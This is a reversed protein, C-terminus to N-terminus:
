VEEPLTKGFTWIVAALIIFGIFILLYWPAGFGAPLTGIFLAVGGAVLAYPIQTRVHEMLECGTAMSTLITTDSIPSCHDAWVAGCLVCAITSYFIHINSADIGGNNELVAWSLPVVLPMLIAMVGWSSGSGFATIAAIIFVAAPLLSMPMTEGLLSVIYDATHLANSIDALAWAMVLVIIGMLMFKVGKYWATFTEDITLLRQSVSLAGAVVVSLLTGYVLAKYSDASGLIDQLQEGEGTMYITTIVTGILVLIPLLANIPRHPIGSKVLLEAGDGEEDGEPNEIERKQLAAKEAEYMAGFDRRSFAILGVFFIALFPYFSYSLSNLFILYASQDLGNLGDIADSILGVQFGIWTTIIAVTAVPASTSDVLYALKARSIKLRDSLMRSTNGVILTNAYDDFFIFLGLLWIFVQGSRRDSAKDMLYNVIGHMGGNRSIIGVMGGLMFTFLIIAAHDADVVANLVYVQFSDFLGTFFGTITLGNAAWAGFWIAAFLAPVIARIWFALGIAILPPLLSVWAPIARATASALVSEGSRLQIRAEGSNDLRINEFNLTNPNLPDSSTAVNQGEVVLKLDAGPAFEGNVSVDFPVGVLVVQPPEIRYEQAFSSLFIGLLISVLIAHLRCIQTM